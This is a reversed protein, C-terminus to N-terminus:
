PNIAQWEHPSAVVRNYRGTPRAIPSRANQYGGKQFHGTDANSWLAGHFLGCSAAMDNVGSPFSRTVRNRATQNIDLAHGTHHLSHRMHGSSLGGMFKIAYGAGDLRDILCQFNSTADNAVFATAGSRSRITGAQAPVALAILFLLVYKM